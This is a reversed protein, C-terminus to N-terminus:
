RIAEDDSVQRIEATSVEIDGVHVEPLCSLRHRFVQLSSELRIRPRIREKPYPTSRRIEM